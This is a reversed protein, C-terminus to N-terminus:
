PAQGKKGDRPAAPGPPKPGAAKAEARWKSESAGPREVVTQGEALGSLVETVRGDSLGPEVVVDETQGGDRVVTVVRRGGAQRVIAEGPVLLVGEKVETVIEVNATMEPKLLAKAEGKVEIKVEFTVVNSLNVGRTAIRVVEGQFGKGPFADATITVPQGLRVNGIDSEDVSALIFIRSLDSLTLITTGGGVNSIGSSIIQGIQVNRAAVIGDIPAAVKTDRLRDQAISLGVQNGEVQSDALKVEQRRLELALEQTQLEAIRAKAAELEAAGQTAFTEATDYEEQSALDGALLDKVRDAKARADRAAAQAFRQAAEARLRDTELTREAVTLNQRAIALKAQSAELAVEAQKLVRQEDIPDLEVLLEGKKVADSVDFPLQIIAGSAKCKIDVDLNSVVRGTSPVTLRLTGRQVTATVPPPAAVTEQRPRWWVFYAGAGLLALVVVVVIARKM